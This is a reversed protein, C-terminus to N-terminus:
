DQQQLEAIRREAIGIGNAQRRPARELYARYAALAPERAGLDDHAAGLRLYPAAWYPELETARRFAAAAAEHRGAAALANGHELHMVPDHPAAEVATAAHGLAEEVNRAQVELRALAAHAPYMALDEVLARQFADRAEARNGQVEYIRGLAYEWMAKSEYAAVAAEDRQRLATLLQQIEVAASDAQGAGVFSLARYHRFRVNRGPNSRVISGFREAADRFEGRGYSLFATMARDWRLRPGLRTLLAVELGRHVFPNRMYARTILSDNAIVAPRRMVQRDEELYGIWTREDRAFFTAWMAMLPEARTPDLRSAWYFSAYAAANMNQGFMAEGRDFYAQWDNADAGRPLRPREPLQAASPTALALSLALALLTPIRM